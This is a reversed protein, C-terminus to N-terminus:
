VARRGDGPWAARASRTLHVFANADDQRVSVRHEERTQRAANTVLPGVQLDDCGDAVSAHRQAPDALQSRVHRDDLVIQRGHRAQAHKIATIRSESGV